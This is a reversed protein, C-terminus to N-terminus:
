REPTAQEYSLLYGMAVMADCMVKVAVAGQQLELAKFAATVAQEIEEPDSM